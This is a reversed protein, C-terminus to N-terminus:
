WHRILKSIPLEILDEAGYKLLDPIVRNIESRHVVANLAFYEGGALESITPHKLAPLRELVIDKKAAPVNMVLLVQDRAELTGVLLLKLTQIAEAKQPDKLTQKNAILTTASEFLVKIIKQKNAFLSLGRESVCVGYRYDRPVHAETTGPSFEVDVKISLKEFFRRTYKPYESLISTGPEIESAKQIPDDISGFLIVKVKGSTFRSYALETVSEVLAGSELVCDWGCIAVDYAGKEVLRPMLQPRMIVVESILPDRIESEQKRPERIVKLNAEEFLHLTNEELSGSPLAIRLM